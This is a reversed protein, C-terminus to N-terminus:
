AAGEEPIQQHEEINSSLAWDRVRGLWAEMKAKEEPTPEPSLEDETCLAAGAGAQAVPQAKGGTYAQTLGAIRNKKKALLTRLQGGVLPEGQPAPGDVYCM